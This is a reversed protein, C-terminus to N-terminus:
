SGRELRIYTWAKTLMGSFLAAILFPNAMLAQNLSSRILEYFLGAVIVTMMTWSANREAIAEHAAQREDKKMNIMVDFMDVVLFLLWAATVGLRLGPSWFPLAQFVVFPLMVAAIYIWAERTKPFAGWGTYKRPGFWEPKAIM